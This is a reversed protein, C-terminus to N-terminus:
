FCDSNGLYLVLRLYTEPTVSNLIESEGGLQWRRYGRKIKKKREIFFLFEACLVAYQAKFNCPYHQVSTEELFPSKVANETRSSVV